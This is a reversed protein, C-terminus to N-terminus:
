DEWSGIESCPNSFALIVRRIYDGFPIQLAGPVALTRASSMYSPFIVAAFRSFRAGDLYTLVRQGMGVHDSTRGNIEEVRLPMVSM